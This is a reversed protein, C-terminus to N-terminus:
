LKKEIFKQRLIKYVKRDPIQDKKSSKLLILEKDCFINELNHKAKQIEKCHEKGYFSKNTNEHTLTNFHEKIAKTRQTVSLEKEIDLKYLFEGVTKRLYPKIIKQSKKHQINHPICRM